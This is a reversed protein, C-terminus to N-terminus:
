AEGHVLGRVVEFQLNGHEVVVFPSVQNTFGPNVQVVQDDWSSALIVVPM